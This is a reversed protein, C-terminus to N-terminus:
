SKAMAGPLDSNGVRQSRRRDRWSQRHFVPCSHRFKGGVADEVERCGPQLRSGVEGPKEPRVTVSRKLSFGAATALWPSRHRGAAAKKRM